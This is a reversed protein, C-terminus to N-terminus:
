AVAGPRRERGRVVVYLVPMVFMSLVTSAIVGGIVARALPINAGGSIAMPLLGLVASLATMLIPRLRVSSAEVIADHASRGESRLRNALDIRLTGVSVDIGIMMIVGV